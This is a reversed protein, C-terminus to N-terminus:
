WPCLSRPRPVILASVAVATASRTCPQASPDAFANAVGRHVLEEHVHLEPTQDVAVERREGFVRRQDRLVAADRDRRVIGRQAGVREAGAGAHVRGRDDFRQPLAVASERVAHVAANGADTSPRSCRMSTPGILPSDFTTYQSSDCPCSGVRSRM